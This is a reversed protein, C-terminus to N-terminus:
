SKSQAVERTRANFYWFSLLVNLTSAIVGAHLYNM